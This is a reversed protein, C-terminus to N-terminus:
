QSENWNSFITWGAAFGIWVVNHGRVQVGVGL